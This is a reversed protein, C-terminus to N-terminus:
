QDSGRTAIRTVEPTMEALRLLRHQHRQVAARNLGTFLTWDQFVRLGDFHDCGDAKVEEHLYAPALSVSYRVPEM